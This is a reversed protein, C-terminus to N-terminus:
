LAAIRTLPFARLPADGLVLANQNRAFIIRRFVVEEEWTNAGAALSDALDRSM